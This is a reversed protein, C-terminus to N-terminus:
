SRNWSRMPVKAGHKMKGDPPNSNQAGVKRSGGSSMKMAAKSGYGVGKPM